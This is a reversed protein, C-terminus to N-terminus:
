DGMLLLVLYNSPVEERRDLQLLAVHANHWAVARVTEAEEKMRVGIELEEASAEATAEATKSSSSGMMRPTWVARSPGGAGSLANLLTAGPVTEEARERRAQAADLVAIAKQASALATTHKGLASQIVGISVHLAAVAPVENVADGGKGRAQLAKELYNLAM